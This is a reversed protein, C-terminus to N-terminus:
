ALVAACVLCGFFKCFPHQVLAFQAQGDYEYPEAYAESPERDWVFSPM